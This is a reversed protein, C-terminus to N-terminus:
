YNLVYEKWDNLMYLFKNLHNNKMKKAEEIWQNLEIEGQERTLHQNFIARFKEKHEYILKVFQPSLLFARDLKKKQDATLNEANKLLAWKLRKFDEQDKFQRRL